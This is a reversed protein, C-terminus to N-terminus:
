EFYVSEYIVLRPCYTVHHSLQWEALGYRRQDCPVSVTGEPVYTWPSRLLMRISRLLIVNPAPGLGALGVQERPM